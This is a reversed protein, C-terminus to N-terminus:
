CSEAGLEESELIRLDNRQIASIAATCLAGGLMDALLGADGSRVNGGAQGKRLLKILEHRVRPVDRPLGRLFRAESECFYLFEEPHARAAEFEAHVLARLKRQMSDARQVM